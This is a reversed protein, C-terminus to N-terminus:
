CARCRASFFSSAHAGDTLCLTHLEVDMDAELKQVLYTLASPVKHLSEAAEAFTGTRDIADLVELVEFSLKTAMRKPLTRRDNM